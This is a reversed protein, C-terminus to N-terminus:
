FADFEGLVDHSLNEYINQRLHQYATSAVIENRINVLHASVVCSVEVAAGADDSERRVCM